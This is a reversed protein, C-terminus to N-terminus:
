STEYANFVIYYNFMFCFDMYNISQKGEVGKVLHIDILKIRPIKCINLLCTIM